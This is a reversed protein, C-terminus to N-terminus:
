CKRLRVIIKLLLFADCRPTSPRRKRLLDPPLREGNTRLQAIQMAYRQNVFYLISIFIKVDTIKGLIIIGFQGDNASKIKYMCV